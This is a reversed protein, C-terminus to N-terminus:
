TFNSFSATKVEDHATWSIYVSINTGTSCKQHWPGLVENEQYSLYPDLLSPRYM